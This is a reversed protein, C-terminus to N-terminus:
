RGMRDGAPPAALFRAVLLAHLRLTGGHEADSHTEGLRVFRPAGLGAAAWVERDGALLALRGGARRLTWDYAVGNEQSLTVSRERLQGGPDRELILLGWATAQAQVRDTDVLGFYTREREITARWTLEEGAREHLPALLARPLDWRDLRADPMRVELFGVSRAPARLVLTSGEVRLSAEGHLTPEVLRRHEIPTGLELEVPAARNLWRAAHQAPGPAWAALGLAAALWLPLGRAASWAAVLLGATCGAVAGLLYPMLPGHAWEQYAGLQAALLAGGLVLAAAATAGWQGIAATRERRGLAGSEM